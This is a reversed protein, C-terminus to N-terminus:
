RAFGSRYERGGTCRSRPRALISLAASRIGSPIGAVGWVGRLSTHYM